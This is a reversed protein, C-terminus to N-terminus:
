SSIIKIIIVTINDDGGAVNAADVLADCAAQPSPTKKVIRYIDEDWVMGSLGDSCLLLQDGSSLALSNMDIDVVSKDGITRYIVNRQPHFRAEEQTIQGTAVLREVLSHDTTIQRIGQDDILYARSDGVHAVYANNGEILAAVLTSGLDSGTSERIEYVDQNATQVADELWEGFELEPNSGMEGPLLDNYTKKAISNVITTSAVEGAAHGGMGDAVVYVGIPQSISQLIRSTEVFLLSDENLSRLMGVDTRRGSAYDVDKPTYMEEITQQFAQGLEFGTSFGPSSLGQEFLTNLGDSFIPEPEFQSKGTLWYYIFAVLASVDTKVKGENVTPSVTCAEFNAWVARDDDMAFRDTELQGDFSLGNTHLYDLGYALEASWDLIKRTEPQPNLKEVEPIVVCYRVEGVLDEEFAAIPARVSGHSLIKEAIEAVNEYLPAATEVLELSPDETGLTTGCDTCYISADFAPPQIAGCDRNPCIRYRNNGDTLQTVIYRHQDADTFILQKSLFMDGFFAGEPRSDFDSTKNLPVTNHNHAEINSPPKKEVMRFSEDQAAALNTYDDGEIPVTARGTESLNLGCVTCFKAGPRILTKCKPCPFGETM